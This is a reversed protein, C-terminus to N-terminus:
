CDVNDDMIHFIANAGMSIIILISCILMGIAVAPAFFSLSDSLIM